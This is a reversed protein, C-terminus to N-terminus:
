FPRRVSWTVGSVGYDAGPTKGCSVINPDTAKGGMLDTTFTGRFELCGGFLTESNSDFGSGWTFSVNSTSVTGTIPGEFTGLNNSWPCKGTPQVSIVQVTLTGSINNGSQKDIELRLNGVHDSCYVDLPTSFAFSNDRYRFGEIPQNGLWTGKLNRAPSLEDSSPGTANCSTLSTLSATLVGVYIM